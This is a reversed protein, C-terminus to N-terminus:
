EIVHRKSRYVSNKVRSSGSVPRALRLHIELTIWPPVLRSNCLKREGGANWSILATCWISYCLVFPVYAITVIRRLPVYGSLISRIKNILFSFWSPLFFVAISRGFLSHIGNKTRHGGAVVRSLRNLHEGLSGQVTGVIKVLDSQSFGWNVSRSAQLESRQLFPLRTGTHIKLLHIFIGIATWAAIASTNAHTWVRTFTAGPIPNLAPQCFNSSPLSVGPSKQPWPKIYPTVGRGKQRINFWNKVGLQRNKKRGCLGARSQLVGTSVSFCSLM